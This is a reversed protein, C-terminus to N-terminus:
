DIEEFDAEVAGDKPSYRKGHQRHTQPASQAFPFFRRLLNFVFYAIVSYLIFRLIM